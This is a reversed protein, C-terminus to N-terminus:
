CKRHMFKVRSPLIILWCIRCLLIRFPLHMRIHELENLLMQHDAESVIGNGNLFCIVVNKLWIDKTEKSAFDYLYEYANQKTM